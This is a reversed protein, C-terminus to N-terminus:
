WFVFFSVLCIIEVLMYIGCLDLVLDLNMGVKWINRSSRYWCHGDDVKDDM